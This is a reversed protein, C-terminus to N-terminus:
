PQPLPVQVAMPQGSRLLVGRGAPGSFVASRALRVGLLDGREPSDPTLLLGSRSRQAEFAFGADAGALWDQDGAVVVAHDKSVATKLVELLLTDWRDDTIQDADDVLVAVRGNTHSLVSTLRGPDRLDAVHIVGETEALAQLPSAKPLVLCLQTGGELLSQALVLLATSRGSGTPGAITFGPGCAALNVTQLRLEDGGVAFAAGPGSVPLELAEALGIRAPLVDVRFPKRGRAPPLAAALEQVAANQGAAGVEGALVAIQVANVGDGAARFGRGARVQVPVASPSLGALAYDAQEDLRLAVRDSILSALDSALLTRDGSLVVKVGVAAGDRLVDVLADHLAGDDVWGHAEVFREWADVVLVLYPLPDATGARQAALDSFGRDALQRQRRAVEAALRALLREAREPERTTVVAGCHPLSTLSALSGDGGDLAYLHVDAAASRQALSAALTRLLTSRGSERAGTVLVHGGHELDWAVPAQLQEHPRDELGWPIWSLGPQEGTLSDLPVSAPLEDLWPSPGAPVGTQGLATVIRALDNPGTGEATPAPLGLEDWATPTPKATVARGDASAAQFPQLAGDGIRAYGRGAAGELLWHAAATGLARRSDAATAMRLVLRQGVQQLLENSLTSASSTGLLLHVGLAGGRASLALLGDRLAPLLGAVEDVAIVLRPVARHGAALYATMDTAAVSALAQQRRDLEATLSALVRAVVASDPDTLASM